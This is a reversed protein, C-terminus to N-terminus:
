KSQVKPLPIPSPLNMDRSLILAQINCRTLLHNVVEQTIDKPATKDKKWDKLVIEVTEPSTLYIVDGTIIIEAHKPEYKCAYEFEFRLVVQKSNGLTLDSKAIDKVSINTNINLKGKVEGLRQALM